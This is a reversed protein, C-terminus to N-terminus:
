LKEHDVERLLNIGYEIIKRYAYAAAADAYAAYAAAAAAAYAAAADAADAAAYAAADAAVYAAYAAAYAAADAAYAAYAAAYAAAAYAAAAAAHAAHANEKTQNALWNKAAEIAKRPRDDKPYKKEFIPLVLEASYVAYKVNNTKDFLRTLLWSAWNYKKEEFLKKVLDVDEIGELENSTFYEIGEECTNKEELWTLNIKM